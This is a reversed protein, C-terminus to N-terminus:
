RAPPGPNVGSRFADFAQNAYRGPNEAFRSLTEESSFLYIRNRYSVGHERMGPVSQGHETALVIDVGGLVPAYRDPDQFFRRQEEPGAFLYTRGRHIAGWRRDGQLWQQKECLSVACYGDLALSPNSTRLPPNTPPSPNMPPPDNSPPRSRDSPAIMGPGGAPRDTPPEFRPPLAARPSSPPPVTGPNTAGERPVFPPDAPPATTPPAPRPDAPPPFDRGYAPAPTVPTSPLGASPGAYALVPAPVRADLSPAPSGPPAPAAPPQLGAITPPTDAAPPQPAPSLAPPGAEPTVQRAAPPATAPPIQAYVATGRQKANAAIRNLRATYQEPEMRGRMVEVLQGQPTLIATTPLSTVGYRKATAPFYDANIKVPVYDAKLEAAVTPDTLVEAEMRKCHTCWPACFHILVLRNTRAAVRQAEELTPEWPVAQAAIGESLPIAGALFALFLVIKRSM